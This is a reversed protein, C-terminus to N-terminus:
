ALPTCCPRPIIGVNDSYSLFTEVSAIIVNDATCYVVLGKDLIRDLIESLSSENYESAFFAQIMTTLNSINSTLDENLSGHEVIGKDLIRQQDAPTTFLSTLALTEQAFGNQCTYEQGMADIYQEYTITGAYVNICCSVACALGDTICWADAFKLFTEVSALVYPGCKPCCVSNEDIPIIIGTDLALDFVNAPSVIPGANELSYETLYDYANVCTLPDCKTNTLTQIYTILDTLAQAVTTGQALVIQENCIIDAGNYIVCQADFVESCPQPTPCGIPTPCPAPSPMFSDECGCKKCTNTTAM